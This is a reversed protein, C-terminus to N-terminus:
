TKKSVAYESVEEVVKALEGAKSLHPCHGAKLTWTKADPGIQSAMQQQVPYPLAGDDTTFIYACQLGNTWPEYSSPTAFVVAATHTMYSAYEPILEDPIDNFAVEQMM